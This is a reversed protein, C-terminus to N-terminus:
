PEFHKKYDRPKEATAVNQRLIVWGAKINGVRRKNRSEDGPEKGSFIGEM